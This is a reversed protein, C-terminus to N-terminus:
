KSSVPAEASVRTSITTDLVNATQFGSMLFPHEILNDLFASKGAHGCNDELRNIIPIHLRLQINGELRRFALAIAGEGCWVFAADFTVSKCSSSMTLKGAKSSQLIYSWPGFRPEHKADPLCSFMIRIGEDFSPLVSWPSGVSTGKIAPNGWMEPFEM